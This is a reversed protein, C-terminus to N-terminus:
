FYFNFNGNFVTGISEYGYSAISLFLGSNQIKAANYTLGTRDEYLTVRLSDGFFAFGKSIFFLVICIFLYLIISIITLIKLKEPEIVFILVAAYIPFSTLKIAFNSFDFIERTLTSIMAINVINSVLNVMMNVILIFIELFRGNKMGVMIPFDQFRKIMFELDNAQQEPTVIERNEFSDDARIKEEEENNDRQTRMQLLNEPNYQDELADAIYMLRHM